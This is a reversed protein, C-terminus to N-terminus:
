SAVSVGLYMRSVELVLFLYFNFCFNLLICSLSFYIHIGNNLYFVLRKALEAIQVHKEKYLVKYGELFSLYSKPTVHTQRRFRDYYMACTDAVNDQVMGMIEILQQKIENSCVM